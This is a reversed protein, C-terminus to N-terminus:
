GRAISDIDEFELNCCDWDHCKPCITDSCRDWDFCDHELEVHYFEEGCVECKILKPIYKFLYKPEETLSYIPEINRYIEYELLFPLNYSELLKKIKSPMKQKKFKIRLNLAQHMAEAFASKTLWEKHVERDDSIVIKYYKNNRKDIITITEEPIDERYCCPERISRPWKPNKHISDRDIKIFYKM